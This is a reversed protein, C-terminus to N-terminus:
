LIRYVDYQVVGQGPAGVAIAQIANMWAYKEDGTEFLPATTIRRDGSETPAM